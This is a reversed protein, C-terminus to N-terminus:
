QPLLSGLRPGAKRAILARQPFAEHHAADLQAHMHLLPNLARVLWDVGPRHTLTMVCGRLDNFKAKTRAGRVRPAVTDLRHGWDVVRLARRLTRARYGRARLHLYFQVYEHKFADFTSSHTLFRLLEAKIFGAFMHRPHYSRPPLYQYSNLPKHYVKYGFSAQGDALDRSIELDMFVAHGHEEPNTSESAWELRISPHRSGLATQFAPVLDTPGSWVTIVDDIYRKYLSIYPAYLEIIPSEIYIMYINAYMVSFATGMSTGQLQHYVGLGPCHVYTHTLVLRAAEVLMYRAEDDWRGVQHVWWHLAQLGELLPISPYLATVDATLICPAHPAAPLALGDLARCVEGSNSLIHAHKFVDPALQQHLWRSLNATVYGINSTIPRSALDRKHLKFLIYFKCYKPKDATADNSFDVHNFFKKVLHKPFGIGSLMSKLKTCVEGLFIKPDLAGTIEDGLFAYTHTDELHTRCHTLYLSKSYFAPGLNKDTINYGVDFRARLATLTDRESRSLNGFPRVGFTPTGTAKIQAIRLDLRNFWAKIGPSIKIYRLTADVRDPTLTPYLARRFPEFGMDREIKENERTWVNKHRGWAQAIRVKFQLCAALLEPHPIPAPTPIYSPTYALLSTLATSTLLPDKQHEPSLLRHLTVNRVRQDLVWLPLSFLFAAALQEVSREEWGEM